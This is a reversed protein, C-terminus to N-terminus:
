NAFQILQCFTNIKVQQQTNIAYSNALKPNGVVVALSQARSIAVNIRNKDFLFDMGRPSDNADSSCMSFFVVPAEQGQFKDVSGVKADSGLAQKLKNVQFNYPAIFLMDSWGIPRTEGDKGNFARGLIEKAAAVIAEVEEDSAQTNGDHEVPIYVVGAEKRIDGSYDAPVSILQRDNEPASNLRGQYIAHSIFENVASHMRYTTALFVGKDDPITPTKHLLYDLTSLGSEAPHTGQVPQGLQMQDGMLIINKTARSMAILNAISVQGAEDIFLYDFQGQLDERSFGWATTGIVCPRKIHNVIESNKLVEVGLEKLEKDTDKTCGFLASINQEHCYKATGLLLNNIAKHSNSSIGVTKGQRLLEAIVHKGTFTKGAGPPGQIPLYSNKLNVIAAIIQKLREEPDHSTAIAQGPEIGEIRPYDRKLFDLIACKGLSNAAYDKVVAEISKPIPEPHVYEDPVLSIIDPPEAKAQVSIIGDSLKTYDPILTVKLPEGKDNEEGLIYFSKTNALKFEQDPNFKYEYVLNRARATPKFPKTDTRVCGALCDIDDLLEVDTLGLRDFLRWFVPKSERRHFELSWALNETVSSNLPDTAKELLAQHLLRDRLNIRESIEESIEPEIVEAKGLYKIGHDAQRARLWVVLEQTSNCDDINYDRIDNLIESTQWSAGDPNQRWNDYVVVSDGGTGVETERKGRYLHEVNKISYKPEGILLGSKVVKYLDVFVENRLLQDVEHECIGYRSMLKKCAAIEYNAYHYIHMSPDQQWRAYAWDIFSKFAQKEEEPSHAWFDIFQREGDNNFYTNGWLYELGGDVLPFGEIDFFVDLDSHAPLLALGQKKGAGPQLVEYLPTEKGESAKQIKAQAKLRAFVADNIGTIRVLDTAALADMTAIGAANLKKIQSRTITAVQSLHDTEKLLQKAFGEWHGFSKSDAPDPMEDSDFNLHAKLFSERISEYYYFYDDTRLRQHQGDGLVIVLDKSRCGQIHALMDQYCCVQVTFYPKLTKSLKTDWVEYHYNGFNSAGQVKVLFDAFGRFPGMSLSAQYLIDAGAKMASLTAAEKDSENSIDAISLGDAKFQDLVLSEHAGGKDQLMSMMADAPDRAPAKDPALIAVHDMWSAFPSEIFLTLDSPSFVISGDHQFM